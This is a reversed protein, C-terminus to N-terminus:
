PYAAGCRTSGTSASRTPSGSRGTWGCSPPSPGRVTARGPCTRMRHGEFAVATALHDDRRVAAVGPRRCFRPRVLRQDPSHRPGDSSAGSRSHSRGNRPPFRQLQLFDRAAEDVAQQPQSQQCRVEYLCNEVSALRLANVPPASLSASRTSFAARFNRESRIPAAVQDRCSNGEAQEDGAHCDTAKGMKASANACGLM